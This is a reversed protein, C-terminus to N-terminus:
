AIAILSPRKQFLESYLLEDIDSILMLPYLASSFYKWSEREEGLTSM